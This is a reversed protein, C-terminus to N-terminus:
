SKNKKYKNFLETIINKPQLSEKFSYWNKSITNKLTERKLLLEAKKIKLDKLNSFPTM